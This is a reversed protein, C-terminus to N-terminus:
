STAGGDAPGWSQWAGDGPVRATRGDSLMRYFMFCKIAVYTTCLYFMINCCIHFMHLMWIFVSAVHTHFM